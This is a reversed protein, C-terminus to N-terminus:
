VKSKSMSQSLELVLQVQIQRYSNHLFNKRIINKLMLRGQIVIDDQSSHDLTTKDLICRPWSYPLGRRVFLQVLYKPPNNEYHILEILYAPHTTLLVTLETLALAEVVIFSFWTYFQNWQLSYKLRRYYFM